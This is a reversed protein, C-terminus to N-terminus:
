IKTIIAAGWTLGGGFAILLIHEGVTTEKSALLEELAIAIASASTNGYKHVTKFVKEMPIEFSKAIADIIRENAQHPVVWSIDKLTLGVKDLCESAAASMRRVAHKFVEKGQMRIYHRKCELTEASTPERAGGGPIIVLDALEGEAGLGITDIAWGNGEASVIASCAGDGFLICTNRDTYDIFSSMKESAVVLVHRYMGADVYAKAMSLAYLFGTCAAQIDVAAANTAGILHQIIGATSPSIYDPTMTATLILDIDSAQLNAAALAKKASAAGLDSTSEDSAAIRREKMGTRSVIWEDSTDVLKELDHNTLIKEPLYTGLGTIRARPKQGTM